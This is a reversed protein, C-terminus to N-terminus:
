KAMFCIVKVEVVEKYGLFIVLTDIRGDKILEVKGM